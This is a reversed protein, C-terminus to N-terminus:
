CSSWGGVQVARSWRRQCPRRPLRLPPALWLYIPLGGGSVVKLCYGGDGRMGPVRAGGLFCRLYSRLKLILHPRMRTQHKPTRTPKKWHPRRPLHPRRALRLHAYGAHAAKQRARCIVEGKSRVQDRLHHRWQHRHHEGTWVAACRQAGMLVLAELM